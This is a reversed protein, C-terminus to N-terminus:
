ERHRHRQQKPSFLSKALGGTTLAKEHRQTVERERRCHSEDEDCNHVHDRTGSSESMWEKGDREQISMAAAHLGFYKICWNSHKRENEQEVQLFDGDLDATYKQLFLSVSFWKWGFPLVHIDKIWIKILNIQERTKRSIRFV